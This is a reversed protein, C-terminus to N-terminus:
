NLIPLAALVRVLAQRVSIINSEEIGTAVFGSLVAAINAIVWVGCDVANTQRPQVVTPRVIWGSTVVQLPQGNQNAILVLRGVFTMIEAGLGNICIDNLRATASNMMGLERPQFVVRGRHYPFYRLVSLPEFQKFTHFHLEHLLDQHVTMPNPVEWFLTANVGPSIGYPIVTEEDALEDLEQLLYDAFLIDETVALTTGDLSDPIDDDDVYEAQEHVCRWSKSVASPFSSLDSPTTASLRQVSRAIEFAYQICPENLALETAALERGFWRVLNEAEVELRCREERCRNVKLLARIGDCFNKDGLWQPVQEVPRSIWVDQMLYPANCLPKLETPLPEPLPIAWEPNYMSALTACLDNYKQLGAMLAPARKKIAARTAQHLKTGLIQHRGGTAQDLRDWEFFSGIARKRVNIKLDRAILLIRIFELDVGRLEPFLEQVSLSAYLEEIDDKLQEHHEQLSTLVRLLHASPSVKALSLRTSHLTKESADLDGQLTLITDLEKKLRVPAQARISLESAQQLAWEQRLVGEEIGCSTIIERAQQSQGDTGKNLRCRIWSGLDDHLDQSISAVHRDIIYLRRSRGCSRTIAVLKQMRSWLREVGEGDTLGVGTRIQPNYVIQCAWQHVFAHMASTALGMRQTINTPLFEYTRLSRDLICAVDYLVTITAAAPLFSFLHEIMAVAYKQQEGPTDINALFIPIDHRCVLAMLGGDDFKEINTKVNSGKGATHSSECENIAEDLVIPKRQKPKRSHRINEIRAGVIDVYDKPLIFEPEYFKPCDCPNDGGDSELPRGFLKGGFCAPCRRQLIRACEGPTLSASPKSAPLDLSGPTQPMACQARYIVLNVSRDSKNDKYEQLRTDSKVVAAEVQQELCIQLNDYWQAAYGLGRRFADQIPAGKKNLLVFGRRAYFTNLASAMANVADCSREFLARYFDLLHISIAIRPHQPATPFLGNSVLVHLLDECTCWNVTFKQFYDQFLCLVIREPIEGISRSTYELLPTVLRSLVNAWNSYLSNAAQDPLIRRSVRGTEPQSEVFEATPADHFPLPEDILM